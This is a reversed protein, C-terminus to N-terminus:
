RRTFSLDWVNCTGSVEFATIAGRITPSSVDMGTSQAREIARAREEDLWARNEPTLSHRSHLLLCAEPAADEGALTFSHVLEFGRLDVQGQDPRALVVHFGSVGGPKPAPFWTINRVSKRNGRPPGTLALDDEVMWIRLAWTWGAGGDPPRPWRNIIRDSGAPLIQPAHETTWQYRWDGSQHLSFKQFRMIDRNGIYLDRKNRPSDIVWVSSRRGAPAGVAFRLKGGPGPVNLTEYATGRAVTLFM